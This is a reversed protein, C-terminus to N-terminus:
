EEEEIDVVRGSETLAYVMPSQGLNDVYGDMVLKRMAGSITRPSMFMGEAIQKATGKYNEDQEKLYALIMKGNDTFKKKETEKKISLANFYDKVDEPMEEININENVWNIFIQKKSLSM